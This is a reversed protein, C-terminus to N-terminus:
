PGRTKATTSADWSTFHSVGPVPHVSCVVLEATIQLTARWSLAIRWDDVCNEVVFLQAQLGHYAIVLGLLIITSLTILSKVANSYFSGKDYLQALSMETEIVNVLLGFLACALSYDAVRKRRESLVNRLGLRFGVNHHSRPSILGVSVDGDEEADSCERDDLVADAATVDSRFDAVVHLAPVVSPQRVAGRSNLTSRPPRADVGAAETPADGDLRELAIGGPVAATSGDVSPRQRCGFLVEM